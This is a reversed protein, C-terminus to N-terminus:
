IEAPLLNGYGTLKEYNYLNAVRLTCFVRWGLVFTMRTKQRILIIGNELIYNELYTTM